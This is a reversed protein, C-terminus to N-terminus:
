LIKRHVSSDILSLIARRRDDHEFFYGRGEAHGRRLQKVLGCFFRVPNASTKQKL